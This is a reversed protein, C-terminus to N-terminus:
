RLRTLVVAHGQHLHAIEISMEDVIRMPAPESSLCARTRAVASGCRHGRWEIAHRCDGMSVCTEHHRGSDLAHKLRPHEYDADLLPLTRGILYTAREARTIDCPQCTSDFCTCDDRRPRYSAKGLCDDASMTVVEPDATWAASCPEAPFCAETLTAVTTSRGIKQLQVHGM